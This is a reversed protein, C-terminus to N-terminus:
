ATEMREQVYAVVTRVVEDRECDNFMDHSTREFWVIRKQDQPTAIREELTKVGAPANTSDNKSHMILIPVNVDPLREETVRMFDSVTIWSKMPVWDYGQIGESYSPDAFEISSDWKKKLNVLVPFLFHLPRNPGLLSVSRTSAGAIVASDVKEPYDIALSLAIWGGMSHGIVIVKEVEQLLANLANRGDEVWATWDVGRLAEPSDTGHGRLTPTLCSLGLAELPPPIRRLEEPAGSFGHMILVGLPKKM